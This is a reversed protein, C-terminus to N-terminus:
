TSELKTIERLRPIRTEFLPMYLSFFIAFGILSSIDHVIDPGPWTEILQHKSMASRNGDHSVYIGVFEFRKSFISAKKLSLLLNQSQCVQLQCPMYALAVAVIRVWSLIDDVIIRSNTDDDIPINRSIALEKWTSDMDHIFSIFFPQVM